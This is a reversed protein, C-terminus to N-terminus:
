AYADDVERAAERAERADEAARRLADAATFTGLSSQCPGKVPCGWARTCPSGAYTQLHRAPSVGRMALSLPGEVGVVMDRVVERCVLPDARFTRVDVPRWAALEAVFRRADAEEAATLREPYKSRKKSANWEAFRRDLRRQALLRHAEAWVEPTAMGGADVMRGRDRTPLGRDTVLAGATPSMFDDVSLWRGAYANIQRFVFGSPAALGLARLMTLYWSGQRDPLAAGGSDNPAGLDPRQRFKYDDIAVPGGPGEPLCVLDPQGEMGAFRRLVAKCALVDAWGRQDMSWMIRQWPVHLRVEALPRPGGAEEASSWVDPVLHAHDLGVECAVLDAADSAQEFGDSYSEAWRRREAEATCAAWPDADSGRFRALTRDALIAHAMSGVMQRPSEDGDRLGAVWRAYAKLGCAAWDSCESQSLYRPGERGDNMLDSHM